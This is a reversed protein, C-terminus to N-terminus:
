IALNLFPLLFCDHLTEWFNERFELLGAKKKEQGLCSFKGSNCGNIDRFKGRTEHKLHIKRKEINFADTNKGPIKIYTKIIQVGKPKCGSYFM